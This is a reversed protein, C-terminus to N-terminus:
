IDLEEDFIMVVQADGIAFDVVEADGPSSLLEIGRVPVITPEERLEQMRERYEQHIARIQEQQEETLNDVNKAKIHKTSKKENVRALAQAILEQAHQQTM